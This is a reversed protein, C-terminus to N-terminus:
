LDLLFRMTVKGPEEMIKMGHYTPSKVATKQEHRVPDFKEGSVNAYLGFGDGNRSITCKFRSYLMNDIDQKNILAELWSYLLSGLDGAEVKIEGDISAKITSIDVMTDELSRGANEFAEDFTRGYSEIEADTMHDLFRYGSM